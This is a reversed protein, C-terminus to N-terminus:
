CHVDLSSFSQTVNEEGHGRGADDYRNGFVASRLPMSACCIYWEGFVSFPPRCNETHVAGVIKQTSRSLEDTYRSAVPQTTRIDFGLLLSIKRVRGPRGQPAARRKYLPYRTEKGPTLSVPRPTSWGGEDLTSTLSLTCGYM